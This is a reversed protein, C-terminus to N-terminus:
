LEVLRGFSDGEPSLVPIGDHEVWAHALFDPATRAGIVLRAAIGRRALLQTLVLSRRLCRTDGPLFALTRVVARGLRAAEELAEPGGRGDAARGARLRAVAQEIPAQRLERRARLYAVVIEGVLRLRERLGLSRGRPLPAPETAARAM